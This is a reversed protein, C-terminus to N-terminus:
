VVVSNYYNNYFRQLAFYVCFQVPWSLPMLVSAPQRGVRPWIIIFHQWSLVGCFLLASSGVKKGEVLQNSMHLGKILSVVAELASQVIPTSGPTGVPQSMLVCKPPSKPWNNIKPPPSSLFFSSTAYVLHKFM